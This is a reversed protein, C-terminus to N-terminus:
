QFTETISLEQDLRAQLFIVLKDVDMLKSRKDERERVSIIQQSVERDGVVLIFPVKEQYVKHIRYNLSRDPPVLKGRFGCRKLAILVERSYELHQDSCPLMAFQVPSLWMPLAGNNQELLIAMPREISGIVTRHILVVLHRKGDGGVYTLNFRQPLSLDVQIGTLDWERKHADKVMINLCPAYFPGTGYEVPCEELGRVASLSGEIWSAAQDWTEKAEINGSEPWGTRVLVRSLSFGFIHIFYLALELVRAIEDQVQDPRCFLHADDQTFGRLRLLGKSSSPDCRYVTGLEALRVPLDRYSHQLSRFNVIHFLCNTPRLLYDVNGVRMPPFVNDSFHDWHGSQQWLGLKAIHPSYVLDYGADLHKKIWLDELLHRILGGNPRLCVLSRGIDEDFFFLDLERGITRHDGIGASSNSEM